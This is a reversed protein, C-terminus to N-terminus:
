TKFKLNVKHNPGPNFYQIAMHQLIKFRKAIHIRYKEKVFYMQKIRISQLQYM